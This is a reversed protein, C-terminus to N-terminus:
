RALWQIWRWVWGSPLFSFPIRRFRLTRALVAPKEPFRRSYARADRGTYFRALWLALPRRGLQDIAVQRRLLHVQRLMNPWTRATWQEPNRRYFAAVCRVVDVVGACNLRYWFEYDALPGHRVDFGGLRLALDRPFLVGPFPTFSSKIFHVPLYPRVAFPYPPNDKVRRPDASGPAHPIVRGAMPDPLVPPTEGQVVRTCVAALGDRLRPLVADLYWPYLTDDEHLVMVWKGRAQRICENWNAVPGRRPENRIYRFRDAPYKAVAAAAAPLGGDDCVVVEYDVGATQAAISALTEALMEPRNYAPIGFTILPEGPM